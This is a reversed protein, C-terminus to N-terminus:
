NGKLLINSCNHQSSPLVHVFNAKNAVALIRLSTFAHYLFAGLFLMMLILIVTYSNTLGEVVPQQGSECLYGSCGVPFDRLPYDSFM